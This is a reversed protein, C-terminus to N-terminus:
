NNKLELNIGRFMKRKAKIMKEAFQNDSESYAIKDLEDFDIKDKLYKEKNPITKLKEYPTDYDDNKYVRKKKGKKNTKITAFGCPKHYNLYFNFYKKYFKNILEANPQPIHMYGMHKRIINNKTEALANDNSHRPRSKTLKILLNNLFNVVKRNIYESGNDAHFSIIDFPYQEIIQFLVPLLYAESIIKETCAVIQWQTMECVSNIHYVSKQSLEGKAGMKDGQHVTDIRVHGPEGNPEPKKREGLNNNVPNTKAFFSTRSTYNNTKRLNYIHSVSIKSLREYKEVKFIEYERKFIKRTSAGSIKEHALDTKILLGIDAPTYTRGSCKRTVKKDVYKLCGQYYKKVLRKTQTKSYNTVRSIYRKLITKDKKRLKKYTFQILIRNIWNYKERKSDIGFDLDRSRKLFKEIQDITSFRPDNMHIKMM